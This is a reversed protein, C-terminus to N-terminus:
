SGINLSSTKFGQIVIKKWSNCVEFESLGKIFKPKYHSTVSPFDAKWIAVIIQCKEQMTDFQSLGDWLLILGTWCFLSENAKWLLQSTASNEQVDPFDHDKQRKGKGELVLLIEEKNRPSKSESLTEWIKNERDVPLLRTIVKYSTTEDWWDM